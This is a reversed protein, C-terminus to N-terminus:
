YRAEQAAGSPVAPIYERAASSSFVIGEIYAIAIDESCPRWSGSPRPLSGAADSDQATGPGGPAATGSCHRRTKEESAPELPVSGLRGALEPVRRRATSERVESDASVTGTVEM